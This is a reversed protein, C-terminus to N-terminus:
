DQGNHDARDDNEPREDPAVDVMEDVVERADDEPHGAQEIQGEVV